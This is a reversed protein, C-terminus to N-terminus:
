EYDVYIFSNLYYWYTFRSTIIDKDDKHELFKEYAFDYNDKLLKESFVRKLRDRTTKIFRGKIEEFSIHKPLIQDLIEKSLEDPFELELFTKGNSLKRQIEIGQKNYKKVLSKSAEIVGLEWLNYNSYIKGSLELNKVLFGRTIQQIWKVFENKSVGLEEYVGNEFKLKM